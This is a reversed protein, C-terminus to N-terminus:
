GIPRRRQHAKAPVGPIESPSILACHKRWGIRLLWETPAAVPLPDDPEYGPPLTCPRSWGDFSAGSTCPDIWAAPTNPKHHRQNLLVYALAARTERPTRLARAHYRDALARGRRHVLANLRRALSIELARMGNSLARKDEAEVILHLHTSMLGYHVVRFDGRRQHVGRLAAKLAELKSKTRLQGIDRSM